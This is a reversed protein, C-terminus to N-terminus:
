KNLHRPRECHPGPVQLMPIERITGRVVNQMVYAVIRLQDPGGAVSDAASPGFASIVEGIHAIVAGTAVEIAAYTIVVVDIKDCQSVIGISLM